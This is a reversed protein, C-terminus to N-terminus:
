SRNASALVTSAPKLHALVEEGFLRITELNDDETAGVVELLPTNLGADVLEQTTDVCEEPTGSIM